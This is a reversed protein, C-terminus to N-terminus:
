RTRRAAERAERDITLEETLKQIEEYSRTTYGLTDNLMAFMFWSKVKELRQIHGKVEDKTFPRTLRQLTSKVGKPKPLEQLIDDIFTQTPELM